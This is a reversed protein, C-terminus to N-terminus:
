RSKFFDRVKAIMQPDTLQESTDITVKKNKFQADEQLYNQFQEQAKGPGFVLLESYNLLHSSVSKYYKITDTQKANNMAHESGGSHNEKAKIKEEIAYDNESANTIIIAKDSDLWVGAYQKQNKQKM